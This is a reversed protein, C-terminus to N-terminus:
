QLSGYYNLLDELGADTLKDMKPKMKKPMVREAALYAKMTQELYPMWQGALLGADDDVSSGGDEHCKECNTDHIKQGRAAKEPDFSQKAVVFEKDAFFEALAEIDEDSLEDAIKCMDTKSGKDPGDLYEAEVCPRDRDKYIELSDIMYQGSVGGISPVSSEMSAGDKGHCNACNETLADIDAAVTDFVFLGGLLATTVLVSLIKESLTKMTM